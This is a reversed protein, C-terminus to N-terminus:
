TAMKPGGLSGVSAKTGGTTVPKMPRGLRRWTVALALWLTSSAWAWPTFWQWKPPLDWEQWGEEGITILIPEDKRFTSELSYPIPAPLGPWKIGSQLDLLTLETLPDFWHGPWNSKDFWDSLGKSLGRASQILPHERHTVYCLFRGDPSFAPFYPSEAHRHFALVSGDVLSLAAIGKGRHAMVFRTKDPSVLGDLDLYSVKERGTEEGTPSIAQKSIWDYKQTSLDWLELFGGSQVIAKPRDQRDFYGVLIYKDGSRPFTLLRERSVTKNNLIDCDWKGTVLLFNGTSDFEGAGAPLEWSSLNLNKYDGTPWHYTRLLHSGFEIEVSKGDPSIRFVSPIDPPRKVICASRNQEIDRIVVDPGDSETPGGSNSPWALTAYYEGCASFCAFIPTRKDLEHKYRGELRGQFGLESWPVHRRAL